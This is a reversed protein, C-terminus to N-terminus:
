REGRGIWERPRIDLIQALTALMGLGIPIATLFGAYSADIYSAAASSLITLIVTVGLIASVNVVSQRVNVTYYGRFTSRSVAPPKQRFDAMDAVQRTIRGRLRASDRDFQESRVQELIVRLSADPYRQELDLLGRPLSCAAAGSIANALRSLGVVAFARDETPQDRRVADRFGRAVDNVWVQDLPVAGADALGWVILANAWLDPSWLGGDARLSGLLHRAAAIRVDQLRNALDSSPDVMVPHDLWKSSAILLQATYHLNVLQGKREDFLTLLWSLAPKPDFEGQLEPFKVIAEHMAVLAWLTEWPESYWNGGGIRYLETLMRFAESVRGRDPVPGRCLAITAISSDWVEEGWSLGDEFSTASDALFESASRRLVPFAHDDLVESLAILADGTGRTDEWNGRECGEAVLGRVLQVVLEELPRADVKRFEAAAPAAPGSTPEIDM